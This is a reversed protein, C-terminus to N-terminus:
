ADYKRGQTINMKPHLVLQTLHDTQYVASGIPRVFNVLVVFLTTVRNLFTSFLDFLTVTLNFVNHQFHLQQNFVVPLRHRHPPIYM